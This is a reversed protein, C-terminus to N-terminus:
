HKFNQIHLSLMKNNEESFVQFIRKFNKQVIVWLNKCVRPVTNGNNRNIAQVFCCWQLMEFGERGRGSSDGYGWPPAGM